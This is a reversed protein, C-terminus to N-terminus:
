KSIFFFCKRSVNSKAEKLKILHDLYKDASHPYVEDIHADNDLLTELLCSSNGADVANDVRSVANLVPFM